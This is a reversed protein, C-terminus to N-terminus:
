VYVDLLRGRNDIDSLDTIVSYASTPGSSKNNRYSQSIQQLAEEDPIAPIFDIRQMRQLDDDINRTRYEASDVTQPSRAPVQSTSAVIPSIATTSVM